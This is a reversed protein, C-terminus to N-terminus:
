PAFGATMLTQVLDANQAPCTAILTRCTEDAVTFTLHLANEPTYKGLRDPWEILCIADQFADQLGLDLADDPNTLRYLDVHWLEADGLDYTQVLTFSPSPVDEPTPLRSQILARAFLTKGAGIEGGLLITDGPRLTQGLTQGLQATAEPSPLTMHLIRTPDVAM